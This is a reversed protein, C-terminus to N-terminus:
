HNDMVGILKILNETKDQIYPMFHNEMETQNEMDEWGVALEDGYDVLYQNYELSNVGYHKKEYESLVPKNSKVLDNYLREVPDFVQQSFLERFENLSYEEIKKPLEIIFSSSSSNSVFGKRQKM